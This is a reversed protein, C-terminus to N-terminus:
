QDPASTFLWDERHRHAVFTAIDRDARWLRASYCRGRTLALSSWHFQRQEVLNIVQNTRECGGFEALEPRPGMTPAHLRPEAVVFWGSRVVLSLYEGPTVDIADIAHRELNTEM